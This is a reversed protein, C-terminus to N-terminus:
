LILGPFHKCKLPLLMNCVKVRKKKGRAFPFVWQLVFGEEKPSSVVMMEGQNEQLNTSIWTTWTEVKAWHSWTNAKENVLDCVYCLLDFKNVFNWMYKKQKM